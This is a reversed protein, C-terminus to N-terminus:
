DVDMLCSLLTKDERLEVITKKILRYWKTNPITNVESLLESGKEQPMLYKQCFYDRIFKEDITSLHKVLKRPDFHEHSAMYRKMVVQGQSNVGEKHIAERTTKFSDQYAVGDVILAELPKNRKLLINILEHAGDVELPATHGISDIQHGNDDVMSEISLSQTNGKRKDKNAFQYERGRTSFCSRNIAKDPGNPDGYLSSGPVRWARYKLAILLSDVLWDVFNEINLQLSASSYAWSSIKYWYRLVLAAFYWNKREVDGSEDADCYGNALDTKSISEYDGLNSAAQVYTKKIDSLAM